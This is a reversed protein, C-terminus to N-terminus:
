WGMVGSCVRGWFWYGFFLHVVVKADEGLGVGDEALTERGGAVGVHVGAGGGGAPVVVVVVVVVLPMIVALVRHLLFPRRAGGGLLRRRRLRHPLLLLLRGRQRRVELRHVAHLLGHAEEPPVRPHARRLHRQPLQLQLLLLQQRVHALLGM